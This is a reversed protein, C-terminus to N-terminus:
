KALAEVFTTPSEIPGDLVVPNDVDDAHIIAYFPIHGDNNGLQKLFEDAEPHGATKDAMLAVVQKQQLAAKFEDTDIAAAHNKKCTPCWDATFDVFVSRGAALQEELLQASYPQWAIKGEPTVSSFAEKTQTRNVAAVLQNPSEHPGDMVIPNDVDDAHIVAYFPIHGDNNGLKKLLADAEPHNETKDALFAVVQKEQLAARLADTKIATTHNTQCTPCWDATFDVFVSQGADLAAQLDHETYPKWTIKEAHLNTETKTKAPSTDQESTTSADVDNAPPPETDSVLREDPQDSSRAVADVFPQYSAYVGDLLIPQTPNDPHFVAYFPISAASNGLKRLLLDAEPNPETKDARLAIANQDKLARALETTNVAAAENAKCTLCWDATFDVFVPRGSAIAAELRAASYDQWAIQDESSNEATLEGNSDPGLRESMLRAAAREFRENMVGEFWGFSVTSTVVIMLAAIGWTRLKRPLAASYPTQGAYWVAVGVGLLLLVTPVVSAISVFSLLYVVTGLMVFGMVYKFTIMWHGPKPLFRILSPVAGIVLYPSALGLGVVAFVSYTMATSQTVAWALAAGLFPGSCPTALVTSLIGKTFAGTYGEQPAKGDATSVFGPLPIEWVGLFSLGFAFVIAALTITFGSSSFQEGWGMGAFVALSALVTMVFLVGGTYSLNMLLIRRRDSQAQQVFSLLKLAVVPLVCPMFNLLLGALFALPLVTWLSQDNQLPEVDLHSVSFAGSAPFDSLQLLLTGSAPYTTAGEGISAEFAYTVPDFCRGDECAQVYLTGKITADETDKDTLVASTWTISRSFESLQVELNPHSMLEPEREALFPQLERIGKSAETISFKAALFPEQQSQSYIHLGERIQATVKLVYGETTSEMSASVVVPPTEQCKATSPFAVNYCVFLILSFRNM